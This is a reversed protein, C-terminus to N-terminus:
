MCRMDKLYKMQCPKTQEFPAILLWQGETIFFCRDLEDPPYILVGSSRHKIRVCPSCKLLNSKPKDDDVPNLRM